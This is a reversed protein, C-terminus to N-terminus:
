LGLEAADRDVRPASTSELPDAGYRSPDIDPGGAVILGDLRPAAAEIIGPIPPLLLPAGGAGVVANVYAAPLLVTPMDWVGWRAQEQYSTLGIVPRRDTM